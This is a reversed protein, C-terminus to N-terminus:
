AIFFRFVTSFLFLRKVIDKKKKYGEWGCLCVCIYLVVPILSVFVKSQVPASGLAHSATTQRSARGSDLIPQLYTKVGTLLRVSNYASERFIFLIMKFGILLICTHTQMVTVWGWTCFSWWWKLFDVLLALATPCGRLCGFGTSLCMKFSLAAILMIEANVISWM